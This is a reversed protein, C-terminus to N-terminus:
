DEVRTSWRRDARTPTANAITPPRASLPATALAAVRQDIIRLGFELAGNLESLATDHASEACQTATPFELLASLLLALVSISVKAPPVQDIVGLGFGLPGTLASFATDHASAVWQTATPSEPLACDVLPLVSTAVSEAVARCRCRYRPLPLRDACPRENVILHARHFCGRLTATSGCAIGWPASAEGSHVGCLDAVHAHAPLASSHPATPVNRM